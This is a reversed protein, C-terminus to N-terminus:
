KQLEEMHQNYRKIFGAIFDALHEGNAKAPALGALLNPQMKMIADLHNLAQDINKQEM